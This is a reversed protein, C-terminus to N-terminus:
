KPNKKIYQSFTDNLNAQFATSEHYSNMFTDLRKTLFEVRNELKVIRKIFLDTRTELRAVRDQLNAVDILIDAIVEDYNREM